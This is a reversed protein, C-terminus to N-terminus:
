PANPSPLPYSQRLPVPPGGKREPDDDACESFFKAAKNGASLMKELELLGISEIRSVGMSNLAQAPALDYVKLRVRKAAPATPESSGSGFM